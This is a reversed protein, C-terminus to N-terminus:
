AQRTKGTRRILEKIDDTYVFGNRPITPREMSLVERMGDLKANTKMREIQQPTLYPM